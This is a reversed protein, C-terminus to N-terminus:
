LFLKQYNMFIIKKTEEPTIKKIEAIKKITLKVFSPESRDKNKPALFPSDTETLLNNISMKEVALQFQQSKDINSPVSITWGNNEIRKLLRVKGCFCHFVVKKVGLEELIDICEVEAKRSHIVFTKNLDKLSNVIKKFAIIQKKQEEKEKTLHFDLGIEGIGVIEKNKSRIFEIEDELEKESLKIATTPYLGLTPKIIDYKKSLRLVEINSDHDTGANIVVKIGLSKAREIVEERDKDFQSFYLHSHIDVFM